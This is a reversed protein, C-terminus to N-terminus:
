QIEGWNTIGKNYQLIDFFDVEWYFLLLLYPNRGDAGKDRKRFIRIEDLM